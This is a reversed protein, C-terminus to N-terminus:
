AKDGSFFIVKDGKDGESAVLHTQLNNTPM